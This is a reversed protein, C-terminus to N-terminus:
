LGRTSFFPCLQTVLGLVAGGGRTERRATTIEDEQGERQRWIKDTPLWPDDQQTGAQM